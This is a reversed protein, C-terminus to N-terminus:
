MGVLGTQFRTASRSLGSAATTCSALHMLPRSPYPRGDVFWGAHAHRDGLTDQGSSGIRRGGKGLYKWGWTSSDLARGGRDDRLVQPRLSAVNAWYACASVGLGTQAM